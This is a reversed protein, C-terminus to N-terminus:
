RAAGHPLPISLGYATLRGRVSEIGMLQMVTYPERGALMENLRDRDQEIRSSNNTIVAQLYSEYFREATVRARRREKVLFERKNLGLHALTETGINSTAKVKGSEEFVLHKSPEVDSPHILLAHEKGEDGELHARFGEVPFRDAKGAGSEAKKGHRRYRNCDACAPFLNTWEYALWYYGPHERPMSDPEEILIPRFAADVVRGKPRFHEVDGPQNSSFLTECYACKGNFLTLLFPMFKKYINDDVKGDGTRKFSEVLKVRAENASRLVGRWESLLDCWVDAALPPTAIECRVAHAEFFPKWPGLATAWGDENWASVGAALDDDETVISNWAVADVSPKIIRIM